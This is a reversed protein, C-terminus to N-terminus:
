SLTQNLKIVKSECEENYHLSIFCPEVSIKASSYLYLKEKGNEIVNNKIKCNPHLHFLIQADNQKNSIYEDLLVIIEDSAKIIKRRIILDNYSYNEAQVLEYNNRKVFCGRSTESISTYSWSGKSLVPYGQKLM